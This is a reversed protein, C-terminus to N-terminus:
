PTTVAGLVTWTTFAYDGYPPIPSEICNFVYTRSGPGVQLKGECESPFVLDATAPGAQSGMGPICLDGVGYAPVNQQASLLLIGDHVHADLSGYDGGFMGSASVWQRAIQTCGDIPQRTETTQRFRFVSGDDLYGGQDAPDPKLRVAVTLSGSLDIETPFITGSSRFTFTVSGALGHCADDKADFNWTESVWFEWLGNGNADELGDDCGGGDSDSDREM